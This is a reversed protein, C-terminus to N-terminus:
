QAVKLGQMMHLTLTYLSEDRDGGEALVSQLADCGSCSGYYVTTYWYTDPQYGTAGVVILITGQYDGDDITRIREPDPCDIDYARQNVLVIAQRFLDEYTPYEQDKVWRIFEDKAEVFPTTLETIM